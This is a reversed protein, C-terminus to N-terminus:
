TGHKWEWMFFNEGDIIKPERIEFGLFRHWRNLVACAKSWTIVRKAKLFDAGNELLLKLERGHQARVDKGFMGFLAFTGPEMEKFGVIVRVHGDVCSYKWWEDSAFVGKVKTWDSFENPNLMAEDGAEYERIM